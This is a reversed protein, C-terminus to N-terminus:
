ADRLRPPVLTAYRPFRDVIERVAASEAARMLDDLWRVSCVHEAVAQRTVIRALRLRERPLLALATNTLRSTASGEVKLPDGVDPFGRRAVCARWAREARRYEATGTVVQEYVVGASSTVEPDLAPIRGQLRTLAEARCSGDAPPQTEPRGGSFDEDFMSRTDSPQLVLWDSFRQLMSLDDPPPHTLEEVLLRGYHQATRRRVVVNQMVNLATNVGGSGTLIPFEAWGRARMCHSVLWNEAIVLRDSGLFLWYPHLARRYDFRTPVLPGAGPPLLRTPFGDLRRRSDGPRCSSLLLAAVVIAAVM